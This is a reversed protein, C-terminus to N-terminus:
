PNLKQITEKHVLERIIEVLIDQAGRRKCEFASSFDLLEVNDDQISDSLCGEIISAESKSVLPQLM